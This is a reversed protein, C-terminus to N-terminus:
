DLLIFTRHSITSDTWSGTNKVSRIKLTDNNLILIEFIEESLILEKAVEPTNLKYRGLVNTKENGLCVDTGEHLYYYGDPGFTYLDDVRCPPYSKLRFVSDCVGGLYELSLDEVIRWYGMQLIDQPGPPPAIEKDRCGWLLLFSLSIILAKKM